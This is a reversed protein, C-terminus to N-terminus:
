PVPLEDFIKQIIGSVQSGVEVTQLPNITGTARVQLVIDGRSAKETRYKMDKSGSNSLLFYGATGVIAIALALYLYIRKM